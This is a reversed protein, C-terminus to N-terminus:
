GATEDKERALKEQGRRAWSKNILWCRIMRRDMYRVSSSWGAEKLALGFRTRSVPKRHSEQDLIRSHWEYLELSSFYGAGLDAALDLLDDEEIYPLPEPRGLARTM